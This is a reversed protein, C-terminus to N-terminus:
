KSGYVKVCNVPKFKTDVYVLFQRTKEKDAQSEGPRAFTTILRAWLERQGSRFEDGIYCATLQSKHLDGSRNVANYSLVGLAVTVIVDFVISIALWRVLLRTRRGQGTLERMGTVVKGLQDALELVELRTPLDPM